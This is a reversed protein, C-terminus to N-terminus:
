YSVYTWAIRDGDGVEYYAASCSPESGNVAYVWGHKSASSAEIGSIGAVYPGYQSSQADVSYGAAALADLVSSGAPVAVKASSSRGGGLTADVSVTVTIASSVSEKSSGASSGAGEGSAASAASASQGSGASTGAADSGSLSAAGAATGSQSSLASSGAASSGDAVADTGAADVASSDTGSSAGDQAGTGSAAGDAPSGDPGSITDGRAQPTGALGLGAYTEDSLEYSTLESLLAATDDAESADLALDSAATGAFRFTGAADRVIWVAEPTSGDPGQGSLWAHLALLRKAALPVAAAADSGDRAEVWVTGDQYAVKVSDADASVDEGRWSLDAIAARIKEETLAPAEETRTGAEEAVTDLLGSPVGAAGFALAFGAASLLILLAGLALLGKWGSRSHRKQSAHGKEGEEHVIYDGM